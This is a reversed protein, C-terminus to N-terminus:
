KSSGEIKVGMKALLADEESEIGDSKGLESVPITNAPLTALLAAAGKEDKVLSALWTDRAAPAIRGEAVAAAVIGERRSTNMQELAQAGAAANQQLEEFAARDVAIVNAPLAVASAEAGSEGGEGEGGEDGDGESGAAEVAELIDEDTAEADLGLQEILDERLAMQAEEGNSGPKTVPLVQASARAVPVRNRGRFGFKSLDFSNSAAPADAWEDALGVTVAEEASYWTEASMADRWEDVKGGARKVYLGAITANMRDLSEAYDRMAAADGGCWGWAEHIMVESGSNMVVRDAATIIFSAASAALGDVTVEVRAPHRALANMMAIGDFVDGGPSNVRLDIVDVDLEGIDQVFWSAPYGWGGIEDYLIVEARSETEGSDSGGASARISYWKRNLEKAM